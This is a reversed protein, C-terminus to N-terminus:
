AVAGFKVQSGQTDVGCQQPAWKQPGQQVGSRLLLTICRIQRALFTHLLLTRQVEQHLSCGNIRGGLPAAYELQAPLIVGVGAAASVTHLGARQKLLM